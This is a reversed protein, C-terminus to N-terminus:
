TKSGACPVNRDWGIADVESYGGGIDRVHVHLPEPPPDQPQRDRDQDREDSRRHDDPPRVPSVIRYSRHLLRETSIGLAHQPSREGVPLGGGRTQAPNLDPEGLSEGRWARRGRVVAPRKATSLVEIEGVRLDHVAGERVVRRRGPEVRENQTCAGIGGGGVGRVQDVIQERPM